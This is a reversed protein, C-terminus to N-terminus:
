TSLHYAYISAQGTQPISKRRGMSGLTTAATTGVAMPFDGVVAPSLERDLPKPSQRAVPKQGARAGTVPGRRSRRRVCCCSVATGYRPGFRPKGVVVLDSRLVGDILKGVSHDALGCYLSGVFEAATYRRVTAPGSPPM